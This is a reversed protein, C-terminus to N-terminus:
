PAAPLFEPRLVDRIEPYPIKVETPGFYYPAVDYSNYYFVLGEPTLGFNQTLAFKDDEFTFGAQKLDADSALKRAERFRKEAVTALQPMAGPKVVDDLAIVEGTAPRLNVYLRVSNPHAGGAFRDMRFQVSFVAPTNLLVAASRHDFWPTRYEPNQRQIDRYGNELEVALAEGNTPGPGDATSFLHQQVTANIQSQAAATPAAVIAPYAVEVSLCTAKGRPGCPYNRAFHVMEFQVPSNQAIANLSLSVLFLAVSASLSRRKAQSSM